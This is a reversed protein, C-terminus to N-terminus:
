HRVVPQDDDDLSVLCLSKIGVQLLIFRSNEHKKFWQMSSCATKSIEGSLLFCGTSEVQMKDETIFYRYVALKNSQTLLFTKDDIISVQKPSNPNFTPRSPAGIITFLSSIFSPSHSTPISIKLATSLEYGTSRIQNIEKVYGKSDTDLKEMRQWVLIINLNLNIEIGVFFMPTINSKHFIRFFHRSNAVVDEDDIM